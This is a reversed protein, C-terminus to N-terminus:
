RLGLGATDHGKTAAQTCAAACRIVPEEAADRAYTATDHRMRRRIAARVESYRSM